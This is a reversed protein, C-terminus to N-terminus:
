VKSANVDIKIEKNLKISVKFVSEATDVEIAEKPVTVESLKPRAVIGKLQEDFVTVLDEEM